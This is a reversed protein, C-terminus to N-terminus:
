TPYPSNITFGRCRDLGPCGDQAESLFAPEVRFCPQVLSAVRNNNSNTDGNDTDGGINTITIQSLHKVLIKKKCPDANYNNRWYLQYFM